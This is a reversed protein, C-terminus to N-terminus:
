QGLAQSQGSGSDLDVGGVEQRIRRFNISVTGRCRSVRERGRLLSFDCHILRPNRRPVLLPTRLESEFRRRETAAGSREDIAFEQATGVPQSRCRPIPRDAEIEIEVQESVLPNPNLLLKVCVAQLTVPSALCGHRLLQAARLLSRQYSDFGRSSDSPVRGDLERRRLSELGLRVSAVLGPKARNRFDRIGLPQQPM